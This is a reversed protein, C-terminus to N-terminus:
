RGNQAKNIEKIIKLASPRIQDYSPPQIGKYFAYSKHKEGFYGDLHYVREGGALEGGERALQNTAEYSGLSLRYHERGNRDTVIFAYYVAWEAELPEFYEFVFVKKDDDSWQERCYREINKTETDSATRRLKLLRKRERDRSALDGLAQHTQIVKAVGRWDNPAVKAYRKWYSLAQEHDSVESSAIGLNWLTSLNEPDARLAIEFYPIADQYNHKGALAAGREFAAVPDLSGQTAAGASFAFVGFVFIGFFRLVARVM